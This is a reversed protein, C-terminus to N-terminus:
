GMIEVKIRTRHKPVGWFHIWIEWYIHNMSMVLITLTRVRDESCFMGLEKLNRRMGCNGFLLVSLNKNSWHNSNWKILRLLFNGIHHRGLMATTDWVWSYLSWLIDHVWVLLEWTHVFYSCYTFILALIFLNFVAIVCALINICCHCM